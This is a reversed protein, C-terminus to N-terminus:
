HSIWSSKPQKSKYRYGPSAPFTVPAPLNPQSHSAHDKRKAERRRHGRRRLGEGNEIVEIDIVPATDAIGNPRHHLAAIPIEVSHTRGVIARDVFHRRLARLGRKVPKARLRVARVAFVERCPYKQCVVPIEVACGLLAPRAEIARDVFHRRLTRQGRKVIKAGLRIAG